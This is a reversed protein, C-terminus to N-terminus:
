NQFEVRFIAIMSPACVFLSRDKQLDSRKAMFAEPKELHWKSSSTMQLKPTTRRKRAKVKILSQPVKPGIPQPRGAIGAKKALVM